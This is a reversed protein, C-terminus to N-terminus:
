FCATTCAKFFTGRQASLGTINVYWDATAGCLETCTAEHQAGTKKEEALRRLLQLIDPPLCSAAKIQGWIDLIRKLKSIKEQIDKYQQAGTGGAGEIEKAAAELEGLASKLGDAVQEYAEGSGPSTSSKAKKVYEFFNTLGDLAGNSLEKCGKNPAPVDRPPGECGIAAGLTEANSKIRNIANYDDCAPGVPLGYLTNQCADNHPVPAKETLTKFSNKDRLMQGLFDNLVAADKPPYDKDFRCALAESLDQMLPGLQQNFEAFSGLFNGAPGQYKAMLAGIAALAECAKKKGCKDKPLEETKPECYKAFVPCSQKFSKFNKTAKVKECVSKVEAEPLNSLTVSCADAALIGTCPEGNFIRYPDPPVPPYPPEFGCFCGCAVFRNTAPLGQQGRSPSLEALLATLGILFLIVATLVITRSRNM